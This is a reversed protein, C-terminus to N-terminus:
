PDIYMGFQVHKQFSFEFSYAHFARWFDGTLTSSNVLLPATEQYAPAHSVTRGRFQTPFYFIIFIIHTVRGMEGNRVRGLPCKFLTRHNEPVELLRQTAYREPPLLDGCIPTCALLLKSNSRRGSDSLAHLTCRSGSPLQSCCPVRLLIGSARACLTRIGSARPFPLM